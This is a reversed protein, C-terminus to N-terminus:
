DVFAKVLPMLPQSRWAKGGGSVVAQNSDDGGSAICNLAGFGRGKIVVDDRANRMGEIVASVGGASVVAERARTATEDEGGDKGLAFVQLASCGARVVRLQQAEDAYQHQMAAVVAEAAGASLVAHRRTAVWSLKTVKQAESTQAKRPARSAITMIKLLYILKESMKPNKLVDDKREESEERENLDGLALNALASISATQVTADGPSVKMTAVLARVGGAAVIAQKLMGNSYTLNALAACGCRRVEVADLRLSAMIAALAGSTVIAVQCTEDGCALNSLVGLAKLQVDIESPYREMAAVTAGLASLPKFYRETGQVCTAIFSNAHLPPLDLHAIEADSLEIEGLREAASQDEYSKRQIAAMKGQLMRFLPAHSLEGAGLLGWGKLEGPPMQRWTHGLDHAHEAQLIPRGHKDLPSRKAVRFLVQDAPAWSRVFSDHRIGHACFRVFEDASLEETGGTDATDAEDQDGDGDRDRDGLARSMAGNILETGAPQEPSDVQTWKLGLPGDLAPKFYVPSPPARARVFAGKNAPVVSASVGFSALERHTFERQESSTSSQLASSLQDNVIEHADTPPKIVERFRFGLPAENGETTRLMMDLESYEMAGSGDADLTDFLADSDAQEVAFGLARVARYFETKDLTGSQDKDWAKFLTEVRSSSRLLADKLSWPESLLYKVAGPAYGKICDSPRLNAAQSGGSTSRQKLEELEELTFALPEGAVLRAVLASSFVDSIVVASSPNDTWTYGLPLGSGLLHRKRRADGTSLYRLAGCAIFLLKLDGGHLDLALVLARLGGKALIASKGEENGSAISALAASGARQVRVNARHRVMADVVSVHGEAKLVENRQVDNGRAIQSLADCCSIQTNEDMEHQRMHLAILGPVQVIRAPLEVVHTGAM